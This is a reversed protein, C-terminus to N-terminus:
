PSATIVKAAALIAEMGATMTAGERVKREAVQEAARVEELARLV